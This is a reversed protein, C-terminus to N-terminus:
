NENSCYGWLGVNENQARIEQIMLEHAHLKNPSIVLLKAFGQRILLDNFRKGDLYLYALTRDYKDYREIDYELEVEKGDLTKRSYNEAEPGFCGVPKSPHHTEPTDIGLLRITEVKGSQYRVKLTDGDSVSIVTAKERGSSSEGFYYGFCLAITILIFIIALNPLSIRSLAQYKRYGIPIRRRRMMRAM